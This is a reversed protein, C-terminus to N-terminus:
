KTEGFRIALLKRTRVLQGQYVGPNWKPMISVIRLAEQDCSEHLGKMIRINTISGDSEVIFEVFVKGAITEKGPQWKNNRAIFARLSDQGGPFEPERDTEGIIESAKTQEFAIFDAKIELRDTQANLKIVAIFLLLVAILPRM